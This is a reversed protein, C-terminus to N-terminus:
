MSALGGSRYAVFGRIDLHLRGHGLRDLRRLDWDVSGELGTDKRSDLGRAPQGQAIVEARQFAKHLLLVLSDLGDIAHDVHMGDGGPLVGGLQAVGRALTGGGKDGGPDVWRARDQEVLRLNRGMDFKAPNEVAHRAHAPHAAHGLELVLGALVGFVDRQTKVGIGGQHGGVDQGIVGGHNRHALVLFLM